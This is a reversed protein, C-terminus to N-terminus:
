HRIWSVISQNDINYVIIQTREVKVVEQILRSKFRANYVEEPVALFISLEPRLLNLAVRYINYQGLAEHMNTIFSQGRFSKVEVAIKEGLREVFLAEAELDVFLEDEDIELFLNERIIQWGEKELANKVSNHYLDKRPM